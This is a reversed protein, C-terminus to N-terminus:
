MAAASRQALLFDADRYLVILHREGARGADAAWLLYYDFHELSADKEVRLWNTARHQARYFNAIPEASPTAGIRIHEAGASTRLVDLASQLHAAQSGTLEPLNEAAAHAHSLPLVLFVLAVVVAPILVRDIWDSWRRQVALIGLGLVVSPIAFSTRAAVSLGLCVGVLNLFRRDVALLLACAMLALAMGTGDAHVFWGWPLPIAAAALFWWRSGPLIGALQWTSWFYLISALLAPLRVSFPSVHFLGVSRKELLAYLVDGDPLESALVQRTAPRVSRDYLYAEASRVPQTAAQYVQVAFSAAAFALTLRTSVTYRQAM